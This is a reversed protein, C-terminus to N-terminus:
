SKKLKKIIEVKDLIEQSFQPQYDNEKKKIIPQAASLKETMMTLKSMIDDIKTSLEAVKIELEATKMDEEKPLDETVATSGSQTPMDDETDEPEDGTVEPNGKQLEEEKIEEKVEEVVEVPTEIVEAITEESMKVEEVVEASLPTEVDKNVVDMIIGDKVLIISDDSLSYEGDPMAINGDPTSIFANVGTELNGSLEIPTGDRLTLTSAFHIKLFKLVKEIM